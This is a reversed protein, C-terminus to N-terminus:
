VPIEMFSMAVFRDMSATSYWSAMASLPGSRLSTSFYTVCSISSAIAASCARPRMRRTPVVLRSARRATIQFTVFIAALPFGPARFSTWISRIAEAAIGPVKGGTM